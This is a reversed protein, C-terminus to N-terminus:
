VRGEGARGRPRGKARLQSAISPPNCHQSATNAQLPTLSRLCRVHARHAHPKLLVPRRLLHLHNDAVRTDMGTQPCHARPPYSTQSPPRHQFPGPCRACPIPSKSGPPRPPPSGVHARGSSARTGHILVGNHLRRRDLYAGRYNACAAELGRLPAPSLRVGSLQEPVSADVLDAQWGWVGTGAGERPMPEPSRLVDGAM